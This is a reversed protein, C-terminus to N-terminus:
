GTEPLSDTMRDGLQCVGNGHYSKVNETKPNMKKSGAMIRGVANIHKRMMELLAMGQSRNLHKSVVTSLSNITLCACKFHIPPTKLKSRIGISPMLEQTLSKNFDRNTSKTVGQKAATEEEEPEEKMQESTEMNKSELNGLATIPDMVDIMHCDELMDGQSENSINKVPQSMDFKVIEDGLCFSLKKDEMDFKAKATYLFPRGLILPMNPDEVMDLVVFDVPFILKDVKVLINEAIGMPTKTSKDAFRLIMKTPTVEMLGLRKFVPYPMLNISSGIDCLANMTSAEGLKCPVSFIGDDIRKEPLKGQHPISNCEGSLLLCETDDISRKKTLIEKLFKSYSPIRSITDIFPLNIHIKKLMEVFKSYGEDDKKKMFRQPFPLPPRYKTELGEKESKEKLARKEKALEWMYKRLANTKESKKDVGEKVKKEKEITEKEAHKESIQDQNNVPHGAPTLVKKSKLVMGEEESNTISTHIPNCERVPNPEVNSPLKGPNRQGIEKAIQSVSAELSRISAHVQQNTNEQKTAM